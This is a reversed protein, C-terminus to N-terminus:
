FSSNFALCLHIWAVVGIYGLILFQFLLYYAEELRREADRIRFHPISLLRPLTGGNVQLRARYGLILFQFDNLTPQLTRDINVRIRFHPISLNRAM